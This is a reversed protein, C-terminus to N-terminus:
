VLRVTKIKQAFTKPKIFKGGGYTMLEDEMGQLDDPDLEIDRDIDLKDGEIKTDKLVIREFDNETLVDTHLIDNIKFPEFDELVELNYKNEFDTLGYIENIEKDSIIQKDEIGACL